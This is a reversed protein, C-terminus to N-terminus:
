CRFVTLLTGIYEGLDGYPIVPTLNAHYSYSIAFFLQNISM